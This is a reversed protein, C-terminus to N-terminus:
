RVHHRHYQAAISYRYYRRWWRWGEVDFLLMAASGGVMKGVGVEEVLMLVEFGM